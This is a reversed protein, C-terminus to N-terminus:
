CAYTSHTSFAATIYGVSLREPDRGSSVSVQQGRLAGVASFSRSLREIAELDVVSLTWKNTPSDQEFVRVLQEDHSYPLHALLVADVASFVATSAGIGLALVLAASATFGPARTLSRGAYKMDAWLGDMSKAMRQECASSLVRNFREVIGPAL